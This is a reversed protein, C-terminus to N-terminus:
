LSHLGSLSSTTWEQPAGSQTEKPPNSGLSQALPWGKDMPPNQNLKHNYKPPKWEAETCLRPPYCLDELPHNELTSWKLFAKRAKRPKTLLPLNWLKLENRPPSCGWIGMKNWYYCSCSLKGAAQVCILSFGNRQYESLLYVSTQHM